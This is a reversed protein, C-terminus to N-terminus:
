AELRQILAHLEEVLERRIQDVMRPDVDRSRFHEVGLLARAAGADFNHFDALETLAADVGAVQSSVEVLSRAFSAKGAKIAQMAELPLADGQAAVRPLEARAEAEVRGAEAILSRVQALALDARTRHVHWAHAVAVLVARRLKVADPLDPTAKQYALAAFAKAAERSIAEM